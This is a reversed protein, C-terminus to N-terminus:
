LELRARMIGSQPEARVFLDAVRAAPVVLLEVSEMIGGYNYSGGTRHPVFKNRHPTQDLVIGDIPENVPNLVRLALLNEAGPRLAPTLDLVFPTEGGEHGGVPIGNVWVEALYDVAWCRM